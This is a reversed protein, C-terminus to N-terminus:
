KKFNNDILRTIILFFIYIYIYIFPMKVKVFFFEMFGLDMDVIDHTKKNRLFLNIFLIKNRFANYFRIQLIIIWNIRSM